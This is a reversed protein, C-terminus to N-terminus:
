KTMIDMGLLLLNNSRFKVPHSQVAGIRPITVIVFTRPTETKQRHLDGVWKAGLKEKRNHLIICSFYYM